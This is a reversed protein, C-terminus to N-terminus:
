VDEVDREPEPENRVEKVNLIVGGGNAFIFTEDEFDTIYLWGDKHQIADLSTITIEWEVGSGQDVEVLWQRPAPTPTESLSGPAEDM